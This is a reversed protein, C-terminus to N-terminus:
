PCLMNKCECIVGVDFEHDSPCNDLEDSSNTNLPRTTTCQEMRDNAATCNATVLWAIPASTINSQIDYSFNSNAKQVPVAFLSMCFSRRAADNKSM